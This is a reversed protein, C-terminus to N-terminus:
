EPRSPRWPSRPFWPPQFSSRSTSPLPSSHNEYHRPVTIHNSTSWATAEQLPTRRIFFPSPDISVLNNIIKYMMVAKAHRRQQQLIEWELSKLMPGVSSQRRYNGSVFRAARCKSWRWLKSTPSPTFRHPDWVKFASELQPRVLSKYWAEKISKSCSHFNYRLFAM